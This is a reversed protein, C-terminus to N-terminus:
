EIASEQSPNVLQRSSDLASSDFCNSAGHTGQTSEPNFTARDSADLGSGGPVRGDRILDMIPVPEGNVFATQSVLRVGHSYDSYSDGHTAHHNPEWYSSNSRAFGYISVRGQRSLDNMVLDKKHCAVLDGPEYPTGNLRRDIDTDHGRVRDMQMNLTGSPLYTRSVISHSESNTRAENCIADAIGTTPLIFGMERAIEVAQDRGLPMRVNDADTGVSLYDPMVCITIGDGVEIPVLNTLHPAIHGASLDGLVQCHRTNGNGNQYRSVLESGSRRSSTQPVRSTLTSSSCDGGEVEDILAQWDDAGPINAPNMELEDDVPSLDDEPNEEDSIAESDEDVETEVKTPGSQFFNPTETGVNMRERNYTTQREVLSCAERVFRDGSVIVATREDCIETISGRFSEYDRRFEASQFTPHSFSDSRVRVRNFCIETTADSFCYPEGNSRVGFIVPNCIEQNTDVNGSSDRCSFGAYSHTGCNVSRDAGEIPVGGGICRYSTNAHAEQLFLYLFSVKVRKRRLKNKDFPILARAVARLYNRRKNLSLSMLEEYSLFYKDSEKKSFSKKAEAADCGIFSFVLFLSFIFFKIRM